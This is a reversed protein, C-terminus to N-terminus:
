TVVLKADDSGDAPGVDIVRTPWFEENGSQVVLVCRRM